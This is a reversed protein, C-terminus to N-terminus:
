NLLRAQRRLKTLLKKHIEEKNRTDTKEAKTAPKNFLEGSINEEIRTSNQSGSDDILGAALAAVPSFVEM